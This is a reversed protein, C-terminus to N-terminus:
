NTNHGRFQTESNPIQGHNIVCGGIYAMSLTRIQYTHDDFQDDIWQLWEGRRGLLEMVELWKSLDEYELFQSKLQKLELAWAADMNDYVGELKVNDIGHQDIATALEKKFNELMEERLPLVYKSQFEGWLRHFNANLGERIYQERPDAKPESKSKSKWGFM